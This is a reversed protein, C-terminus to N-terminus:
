SRSKEWESLGKGEKVLKVLLDAPQWHTDGFQKQFTMIGDYVTKLGITDAYYLPGGRYRPFGYGAGWVVDIDSARIAVGEELIKIGDNIMAFICREIIEQETHDSRQTIGLKEGRKKLLDLAVPDDYRQRDGPKYYYFGKGNKQGMRGDDYIAQSAQYYAPDPPFQHANAKHVNVGVDVGAMDFVALIGMAMGFSQLADDVKRPTAGELAMFEAERAYGEMMRNGIFGYCVKALVPTKRLQKALGLATKIVSDSTTDTRVVELLPMVNAPSFFHLGIVNEPHDTVIAIENIDLTSTNTALIADKKAVRSLTSFIDKKLSMDEFVAEIIVDADKAAELGVAGSILSLTKQKKEETMRGRKVRSGYDADIRALGKDVGEQNIDILLAPIGANAFCMAIGGGMTGAGIIAASNIDKAKVDSSIGPIKTTEREAFFLHIAGKSEITEKAGNVLETEYLLGDQFPKEVSAKVAKIATLAAQRGPYLKKALADYKVFVEATASSADVSKESTRRPGANNKILDNLYKEASSQLESFDKHEIIEDIFGAEKGAEADVPRAGVIMELSKDVGIIRPMRQTGGAGPIIGLTVEPFGFRASNSALRYHCALAIELGGGMVTGHMATVVPVNLNEIRAFLERYDAEKPPGNFENIDAGSFYTKGACMLLVGKLGNEKKIKDVTENLGDRVAATITNVPPNNVVILAIGNEIKLDIVESM